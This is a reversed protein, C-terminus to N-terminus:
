IRAMLKSKFKNWVEQAADQKGAEFNGTVSINFTWTKGNDLSLAFVQVKKMTGTIFMWNLDSGLGDGSLLSVSIQNPYAGATGDSMSMSRGKLGLEGGVEIITKAFEPKPVEFTITDRVFSNKPPHTERV